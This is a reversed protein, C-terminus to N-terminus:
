VATNYYTFEVM